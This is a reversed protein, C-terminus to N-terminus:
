LCCIKIGMAIMIGIVFGAIAESVKHGEVVRVKKMTQRKDKNRDEIIENIIRGHEGVAYRVNTADYIIILTNCVSLAFLVSDFGTLFGIIVTVATFSATHGSPMGGSKVMYYIIDRITTKGHKRIFFFFLKLIQSVFWGLIFALFVYFSKM